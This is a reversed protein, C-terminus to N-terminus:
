PHTVQSIDTSVIRASQNVSKSNRDFQIVTVLTQKPQSLLHMSKQSVVPEFGATDTTTASVQEIDNTSDEKEQEDFQLVFTEAQSM